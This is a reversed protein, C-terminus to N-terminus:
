SQPVSSAPMSGSQLFKRIIACVIPGTTNWSSKFFGSSFGDPGPSKHNPIDFMAEKIDKDSFPQCLELQQEMSLIAGQAITAPDIHARRMSAQGLHDRYFSYIVDEVRDFSELENGSADLLSYIYTALKRQKAKAYLFRTATMGM